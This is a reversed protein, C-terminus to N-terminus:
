RSTGLPFNMRRLLDQFRPESRIKALLLDSKLQCLGYDRQAYARDLWGFAKDTEGRWAHVEAIQYAATESYKAVLEDLDQQSARADGLDHEAMAAGTLRGYELTRAFELLADKPNGELLYTFGLYRHSIVDGSSIEIARTLAKRAGKFDGSSCLGVGLNQWASGSLPDLDIAKRAEATAEPLRGVTTLLWSAVLHADVNGPDLSLAQEVDTQAGAWDPPFASSRLYGRAAYGEVLTPDLSIAKEVAARAKQEWQEAEAFKGSQAALDVEAVALSAYAAAYGPDLRIANEYAEVARRLGDPNSFNYFHRGLLYQTYAEPNATQRQSAVPHEQPLLTVKLAAVVAGAIEDQVAFVETMTRDYSEAWIQYGDAVNVLQTSVRLRDGSRRVSGELVTAVHLERGIDALKADKGKFAFSSTRGAVHIEKVKTLLGMLEESLGDSFYEQEKDGSVNTFPLVAISPATTSPPATSGRHLSRLTVVALLAVVGIAVPILVRKPWARSLGMIQATGTATPGSAESLAFALDRASQFREDPVKELCRRIVHGITPPVGVGSASLEPAEDHLIAGTTDAATDRRFPSRGSLMEYLVCGFSFIDSRHDVSQGRVQEPSMYAVTGLVTGADTGELVTTAKAQEAVSRPPTLKAIGFDLIKVHGDRTVFVNAPKLDRHIIGKEHAAALGQAIQVATEVAKRVPLAGDSLRERLSEGELLETVIYPAGEHTGIDHLALINPHNLAAVARAEQEFRHLRDPDETFEAPLVKIAVDRGLRTDRARYVEGM